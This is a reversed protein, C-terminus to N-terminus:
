VQRGATSWNHLELEVKRCAAEPIANSMLEAISCVACISM